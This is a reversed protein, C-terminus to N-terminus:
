LNEAIDDFNTTVTIDGLCSFDGSIGNADLIDRYARCAEGLDSDATTILADFIANELAPGNLDPNSDLLAQVVELEIRLEQIYALYANDVEPPPTLTALEEILTQFEPLFFELSSRADLTPNAELQVNVREDSESIVTLFNDTFLAIAYWEPSGSPVVGPPLEGQDLPPNAVEPAATALTTPAPPAPTTTPATASPTTPAAASPTAPPLAPTTETTDNGSCATALIVLATALTARRM